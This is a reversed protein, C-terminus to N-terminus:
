TSENEVAAGLTDETGFPVRLSITTGKGPRSQLEFKGGLLKVREEMGLIGLSDGQTARRRAEDPNFGIGDDRILVQIVREASSVHVWAHQARAHRLINNIAEQVVRYCAMNIEIPLSMQFSYAELNLECDTLPQQRELYWRVTAVLGFDDLMSPHLNLSLDRVAQIAQGVIGVSDDIRGVARAPVLGRVQQLSISVATLVQGIEDHLERAVRRRENEEAAILQRSVAALREHSARLEDEARKRETIDRKIGVLGICKGHVDRLPVKSSLMWYERDEQDRVSEEQNLQPQGSQMVRQDEDYYRQALERPYLDFVTKGVMEANTQAGVLRLNAANNLLQRSQTDKVFIFDPIHDVLTHLLNRENILAVEAQKRATIDLAIGVLGTIQGLADRLPVKTTLYWGLQGNIEFQEEREIVPQGTQVVAKDDADFSRAVAAPFFDFVTQGLMEAESNLGLQRAHIRNVFLYRGAADKVFVYAPLHDAMTRLLQREAALAMEALKRETIDQITGALRVTQRQSNHLCHIAFNFHRVEGHVSRFRFDGCSDQGTDVLREHSELMRQRDDPHVLEMFESHTPPGQAIDRGFLLYMGPSWWGTKTQLDLEWSGMRAREQAAVLSAESDRLAAEIRKLETVEIITGQIIEQGDPGLPVIAVNECVWILRGDKQKLQLQYETLIRRALLEKVYDNRSEREPYLREAHCQLLEEKSDYGFMRVFAGNCDLIRGDLTSQFVGALNREFLFRYREESARLAVEAQKRETIDEVITLICDKGAIMIRQLSRISDGISGDKRRFKLEWNRVSGTAQLAHVFKVRDEPDLCYNLEVTSRGIIEERTHGVIRLFADNVDLFIGDVLTTVCIGVPSSRFITAFRNESARLAAEAHKRETIVESFIILGGVDGEVTHWPRIEWRVWDTTGDARLFPDEDCKEIAGALCRRHIAKWREPIEPFLDYHCRGIVSDAGLRYDSLWRQSAVLYRMESDLMAIAAPSHEVFLRLQEERVRLAMEAQKRETIDQATGTIHSPRNETDYKLEGRGSIFRDTGDPLPVRFELAGPAQGAVCAATWAQMAPRDEPHILNLFSEKTPTFTDPSVGYLRYTEDSWIIPGALDCQWSGIRAIRQAESLLQEKERLAAETRKRETIDQSIGLIVPEGGLNLLEASILMELTEGSSNRYCTELNLLRGCNKLLDVHGAREFPDVLLKLETTTHGILAERSYGFLSCYVENVDLIRGDALTTLGIALPSNHFVTAFKRESKRLADEAQKRETIDVHCGMLRIPQGAADLLLEARSMIWRWTGDKHRLRFEIDHERRRGARVDNEAALTHALDDPHLRSEWEEYRNPLEDDSYGLQQKWEPSFYVENTLLNWDWLGVNSAQVLLRMRGESERLSEEARKRESIDRLIITFFQRDGVRVKLISAEAPFEQGDRRRGVVQRREGMQRVSTASKAFQRVQDAHTAHFREPIFQHISNGLAEGSTCHFIREAAPNFLVVNQDEDVTIIADMATNVLGMLRAENDRVAQEARKRVTIDLVFAVGQGSQQPFTSGGILIPVRSGDKRFYEKEFPTCVGTAAIERLAMEDLAHYEPPTMDRWHVRGGSVDEQTYGVIRLFADNAETIEGATNWFLMGILDSEIIRRFRGEGHRLAEETRKRETIDRYSVVIGQLNPDSLRNCAIVDIWRWSGNKHLAQFQVRVETTPDRVLKALLERTISEDDPHVLEFASRGLNDEEAYGLNQDTAPTDFIVVGNADLLFFADGGREVIARFRAENVALTQEAAKRDTIDRYNVVIARVSPQNLLNTATAELWIWSENKYQFRFQSRQTLEPNSLLEAFLEKARQVDDPHIRAFASRGILEDNARGTIRSTAPSSYLVTGACDVLAIGDFSHEILARFRQESAHLAAEARKQVTIDRATTIVCSRGDLEVADSSFQMDRREGSKTRITAEFGRVGNPEEQTLRLFRERTTLDEWLGLELTTHGIAEERGYGTFEVFTNNVDIVRCDPLGMLVISDPSFRFLKSFRSESERLAQEAQWREIAAALINAVVQLFHIDDPSFDRRRVAHVGLVGFPRSRGPIIVSMGSVVDHDLLLQPGNFRTEQALYPVIVPGASALTFGAQSGLEAGVTATGVLGPKWGVGARLLLERGSPMLELVKCYESMLTDAVTRVVEDLLEDLDIGALARESLRALTTQQAAYERVASEARKQEGIDTVTGLYGVIQGSEDVESVAQGLVWTTHGAPTQFRYEARFPEGLEASQRWKAFVADRDDPHLAVAWGDGVAQSMSMGTIQCWRENVFVCRGDRTTRFIGVPILNVLSSIKTEGDDSRPIPSKDMNSTGTSM